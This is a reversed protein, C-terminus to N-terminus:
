SILNGCLCFATSKSRVTSNRQFNTWYGAMKLTDIPQLLWIKIQNCFDPSFNEIVDCAFWWYDCIGTNLEYAACAVHSHSATFTSIFNWRSHLGGKRQACNLNCYLLHTSSYLWSVLSRISAALFYQNLQKAADQTNLLYSSPSHFSGQIQWKTGYGSVGFWPTSHQKYWEEDWPQGDCAVSAAPNGAKDKTPLYTPQKVLDQQSWPPLPYAQHNVIYLEFLASSVSIKTLYEWPTWKSYISTCVSRKM